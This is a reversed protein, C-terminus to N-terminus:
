KIGIHKSIGRSMRIQEKLKDFDLTDLIERKTNACIHNVEGAVEFFETVLSHDIGSTKKVEDLMLSPENHLYDALGLIFLEDGRFSFKNRPNNPDLEADVIRDMVIPLLIRDANQVFFKKSLEFQTLNFREPNSKDLSLSFESNHWMFSANPVVHRTACEAFIIAGMSNALFPVFVESDKRIQTAYLTDLGVTLDGGLTDMLVINKLRGDWALELLRKDRKESFYESDERFIKSKRLKGVDSMLGTVMRGFYERGDAIVLSKPMQWICEDVFTFVVGDYNNEPVTPTPTEENTKIIEGGM